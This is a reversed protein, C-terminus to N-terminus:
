APAAQTGQASSATLAATVIVIIIATTIARTATRMNGRPGPPTCSRPTATRGRRHYRSFEFPFVFAFLFPFSFFRLVHTTTTAASRFRKRLFSCLSLPSAPVAARISSFRAVSGRPTGRRRRQLPRVANQHRSKPRHRKAPPYVAARGGTTPVGYQERPVRAGRTKRAVDDRARGVSPALRYRWAM